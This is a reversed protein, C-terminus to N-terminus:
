KEPEEFVARVFFRLEGTKRHFRAESVNHLSM